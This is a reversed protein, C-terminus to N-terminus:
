NTNITLYYVKNKYKLNLTDEKIDINVVKVNRPLLDTSIVGEDGVTIAGSKDKYKVLAYIKEGNSIIGNFIVEDSFPSKGEGFGFSFPDEKGIEIKSVISEPTPYQNFIESNNEEENPIEEVEPIIVPSLPVTKNANKNTCGYILSNSILIIFLILLKYPKSKM